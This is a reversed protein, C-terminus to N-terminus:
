IVDSHQRNIEAWSEDCDGGHFQSLVFKTRQAKACCEVEPLPGTYTTLPQHPFSTCTLLLPTSLLSLALAGPPSSDSIDIAQSLKQRAASSIMEVILVKQEWVRIRVPSHGWCTHMLPLVQYYFFFTETCNNCSVSIHKVPSEWCYMLGYHFLHELPERAARHHNWVSEADARWATEIQRYFYIGYSASLSRLDKVEQTLHLM